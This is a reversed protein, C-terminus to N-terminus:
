GTKVDVEIPGEKRLEAWEELSMQSERFVREEFENPFEYVKKDTDKTPTPRESTPARQARRQEAELAENGKFMLFAGRVNAPTVDAKNVKLFEKIQGEYKNFGPLQARADAYVGVEIGQMVESYRPGIKKEIIRDITGEPDDWITEKPDKEPEKPPAKATEQQESYRKLQEGQMRVTDMLLGWASKIEEPSRGKLDDPIVASYDPQPSEPKGQAEDAPAQAVGEGGEAVPQTQADKEEDAM